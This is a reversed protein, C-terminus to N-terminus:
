SIIRYRSHHIDINIPSDKRSLAVLCCPMFAVLFVSFLQLGCAVLQLSSSVQFQFSLVAKGKKLEIVETLKEVLFCLCSAFDFYEKEM